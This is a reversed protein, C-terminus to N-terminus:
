TTIFIGAFCNHWLNVYNEMHVLVVTLPEVDRAKGSRFDNLPQSQNFGFWNIGIAVKLVIYLNKFHSKCFHIEPFSHPYDLRDHQLIVCKSLM